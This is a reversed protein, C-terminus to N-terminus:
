PIPPIPSAVVWIPWTKPFLIMFVVVAAVSAVVLGVGIKTASNM